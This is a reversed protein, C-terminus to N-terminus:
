YDGVQILNKALLVRKYVEEFIKGQISLNKHLVGERSMEEHLIM